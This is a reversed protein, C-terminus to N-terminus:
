KKLLLIAGLIIIGGILLPSSALTSLGAGAANTLPKLTDAIQGTTFVLQQGGPTLTVFGLSATGAALGTGVLLKNGTSLLPGTSKIEAGQGVLPKLSAHSPRGLMNNLTSGGLFSRIQTFINSSPIAQFPSEVNRLAAKGIPSLINSLASM